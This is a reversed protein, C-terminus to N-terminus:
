KDNYDILIQKIQPIKNIRFAMEGGYTPSEWINPRLCGEYRDYEYDEQGRVLIGEVRGNKTNIVPSGSSLSFTDSDLSFMNTGSNDIINANDTIVTPLGSPHGIVSLSSDDRVNSELNLSLARRDTVPRDLEIISYDLNADQDYAYTIIEKCKYINKNLVYKKTTTVNESNFDFVWSNGRCDTRTRMCHGATAVLTPAILFGTCDAASLEQTFREDPCVNRTKRLSQVFSLYTRDGSVVKLKKNSMMAATSKSVLRLAYNKSDSALERNDSGYIVNPSINGYSSSVLLLFTTFTAIKKPTLM